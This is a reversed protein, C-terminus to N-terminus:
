AHQPRSELEYSGGTAQPAYAPVSYGYQPPAPSPVPSPSKYETSVGPHYYGAQPAGYQAEALGPNATPAYNGGRLTGTRKRHVLMAGHILQLLSTATLVLTLIISIISLTVIDLIFIIGWVTTKLCASSLYLEVPMRKKAILVIEIINMIINVLVIAIQLGAAATFLSSYRDLLDESNVLWLLWASAALLIICVLFQLVWATINIGKKYPYDHKAM